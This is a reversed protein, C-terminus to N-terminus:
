KGEKPHGDKHHKKFGPMLRNKVQSILLDTQEENLRDWDVSVEAQLQEKCRKFPCDVKVIRKTIAM